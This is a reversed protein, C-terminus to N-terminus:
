AKKGLLRDALAAPPFRIWIGSKSVQEEQEGHCETGSVEKNGRVGDRESEM